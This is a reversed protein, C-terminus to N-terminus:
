IWSMDSIEELINKITERRDEPDIRIFTVKCEGVNDLEIKDIVKLIKM